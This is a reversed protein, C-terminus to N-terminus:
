IIEIIAKIYNPHAVDHGAGEAVIFKSNKIKTHADEFRYALDPYKKLEKSGAFLLTKCSIDKILENFSLKSFAEVRKKGIDNKWRDKLMPLDEAFYPSLSFLWLEAPQRRAAEVFATMSGFSFGALIVDKPDHKLYEEHLQAVWDNITTHKWKIPIFKVKYGCKEIAKILGPYDRSELNETHGPCLLVTKMKGIKKKQLYNDM